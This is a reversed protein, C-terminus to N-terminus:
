ADGAIPLLHAHPQGARAAVAASQAFGVGVAARSIRLSQLAPRQTVKAGHLAIYDASPQQQLQQQLPAPLQTVLQAFGFSETAAEDDSNQFPAETPISPTKSPTRLKRQQQQQQQKKITAATPLLLRPHNCLRVLVSLAALL